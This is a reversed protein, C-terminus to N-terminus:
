LSNLEWNKKTMLHPTWGNYYYKQPVQVKSFSDESDDKFTLYLESYKVVKQPNKIVKNKLLNLISLSQSKISKLSISPSNFFFASNMSIIVTLVIFLLLQFM